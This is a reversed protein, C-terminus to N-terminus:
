ATAASKLDGARATSEWTFQPLERGFHGYAATERYIPRLLDLDRVIAAPRLDFVERIAREIREAPLTETGFTEVFLSVPQATGIAYAVQVECREALGAAVVTKAVWRMAYAASRDVKSPDKGSFAGGGHRAYGGYTDVIIKRGTLGADGMPGGVEFRGTPNVLLRFEDSPLGLLRLEPEVVHARIEPTLLSSIDVDGAHQSSVVVTDIRVPRGGEYEVTVQTKGDPRLYPVTGDKRVAALRRALRHALAIPLPMLEPTETCAYGFMMGQDGAGQGDLEDGTGGSRHELATDVGQAIDPSQSGLSVSVGCSAGDFGKQSADYGIGLIVDRVIAPIDAYASTTVEGALHVQGTTILTEVAVRSRPDQALLADLVADSIQDAIKDPHGETVSESTFLRRSM